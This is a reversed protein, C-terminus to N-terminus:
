ELTCIGYPGDDELPKPENELRCVLRLARGQLEGKDDYNYKTNLWAKYEKGQHRILVSQEIVPQHPLLGAWFSKATVAPLQFHGSADTTATDTRSEDNWHWTYHRELTAGAVPSGHYLVQGSMESFLTLTSSLAM